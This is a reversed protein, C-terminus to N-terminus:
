RKSSKEGLVRLAQGVRGSAQVVALVEQGSVALYRGGDAVGAPPPPAM